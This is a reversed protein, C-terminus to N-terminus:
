KWPVSSLRMLPRRKRKHLVTASRMQVMRRGPMPPIRGAKAKGGVAPTATVQLGAAIAKAAKGRVPGAMGAKARIGGPVLSTGVAVTGKEVQKLLRRRLIRLRRRHRRKRQRKQQERREAASRSACQVHRPM